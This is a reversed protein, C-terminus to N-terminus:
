FIFWDKFSLLCFTRKMARNWSLFSIRTDNRQCLMRTWTSLHSELIQQECGGKVIDFAIHANIKVWDLEEERSNVSAYLPNDGKIYILWALGWFLSNSWLLELIKGIIWIRYHFYVGEQELCAMKSSFSAPFSTLAPLFHTPPSLRAISPQAGSFVARGSLTKCIATVTSQKLSSIWSVVPLNDILESRTVFAWVESKEKPEENFCFVFVFFDLVSSAAPSTATKRNM